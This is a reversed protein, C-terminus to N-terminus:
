QTQQVDAILTAFDPGRFEAIAREYKEMGWAWFDFDVDSTGDQISAWLTWGYKSMLGLLRARAVKARSRRGYYAAVLEDLHDLSLDAESWINGLEFCADNNGAYEYDIFWIREGDDIMNAALLDNHCPVYGEHRVTLASRIQDVKPMFEVYDRPLRFGRDLVLDLYRRQVIFMDFDNAFRPSEHLQRCTAAVRALNAADDLDATSFTRGDIWEIALVGRGPVYGAVDPGVGARSAAVANRHEADRDIQLLTSQEASVRVVVERRSATVVRYNRNTLGGPLAQVDLPPGALDPLDDLIARMEPWVSGAPETSALSMTAFYPATV